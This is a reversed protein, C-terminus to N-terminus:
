EVGYLRLQQTGNFLSCIFLYIFLIFKGGHSGWIECASLKAAICWCFISLFEPM